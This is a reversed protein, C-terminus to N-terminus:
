SDTTKGTEMRLAEIIREVEDTVVIRAHPALSVAEPGANVTWFLLSFGLFRLTRFLFAARKAGLATVIESPLNLYHPRLRLLVKAFGLM